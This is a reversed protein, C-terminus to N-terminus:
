LPPPLPYELDPRSVDTFLVIRYGLQIYVPIIQSLFREVGGNFIRIYYVGITRIKRNSKPFVQKHTAFFNTVWQYKQWDSVYVALPAVIQAPIFKQRIKIFFLEPIESMRWLEFLISMVSNIVFTKNEPALMSNATLKQCAYQTFEVVSEIEESTLSVRPNRLDVRCNAYTLVIFDQILKNQFEQITLNLEIPTNEMFEKLM